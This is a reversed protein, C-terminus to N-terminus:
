EVEDGEPLSETFMPAPTPAAPDTPWEVSGYFDDLARYTAEDFEVQVVPTEQVEELEQPTPAAAAAIPAAPAGPVNSPPAPVNSPPAPVNSPGPHAPVGTFNILEDWSHNLGLEQELSYWVYPSVYNDRVTSWGDNLQAGAQKWGKVKFDDFEAQTMGKKPRAPFPDDKIEKPKKGKTRKFAPLKELWQYVVANAMYTRLDHNIMDAIGTADRLYAISQDATTDGFIFEDDGKGESWKQLAAILRPDKVTYRNDVGSKGMFDIRVSNENFTLHKPM